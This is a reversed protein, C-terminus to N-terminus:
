AAPKRRQAPPPLSPFSCSVQILRDKFKPDTMIEIPGSIKLSCALSIAAGAQAGSLGLAELDPNEFAASRIQERDASKEPDLGNELICRLVEAAAVQIAQEYGPGIGGMEISWVSHGSDWRELWEEADAGYTDTLHRRQEQEPTRYFIEKGDIFLGRVAFGIGKGYFRASMGPEPRFPPKEPAFFSWGDARQISWGGAEPTVSELTTEEFEDDNEPYAGM